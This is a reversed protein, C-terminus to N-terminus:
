KGQAIEVTVRNGKINSNNLANIVADVHETPVEVFSYKDLIDISGVINGDLGTEGAIAGVFDGPRVKKSKGISIFLRTMGHERSGGNGGGFSKGKQRRNSGGDHVRENHGGAYSETEINEQAAGQNHLMMEFLAAAVDISTIDENILSEIKSVYKESSNKKINEKIKEMFSSIRINEVDAM